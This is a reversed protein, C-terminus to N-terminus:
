NVCVSICVFAHLYVYCLHINVCVCVCLVPWSALVGMFVYMCVNYVTFAYGFQVPRTGVTTLKRCNYETPVLYGWRRTHAACPTVCPRGSCQKSARSHLFFGVCVCVHLCVDDSAHAPVHSCKHFAWMCVVRVHLGDSTRASSCLVRVCVRVHWLCLCVRTCAGEFGCM